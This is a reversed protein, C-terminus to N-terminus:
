RRDGQLAAMDSGGSVIWGLTTKQAIPTHPEGLRLGEELITACIEARLLLEIKDQDAFQPDALPLGQLHAWHNDQRASFGQYLTLRPLVFAVAALQAGTTQSTIDLVVKGKTAESKAGGIGLISVAARSRPLCLRQTLAESIISIESRQDILARVAHQEGYRDAVTVQAIALLIAKRNDAHSVHCQSRRYQIPRM